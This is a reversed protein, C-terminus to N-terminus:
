KTTHFHLTEDWTKDWDSGADENWHLDFKLAFFSCSINATPQPKKRWFPQQKGDEMFLVHQENQHASKTGIFTGAGIARELAWIVSLFYALKACQSNMSEFPFSKLAQHCLLWKAQSAECPFLTTNLWETTKKKLKISEILWQAIM